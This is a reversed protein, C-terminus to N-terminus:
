PRAEPGEVIRLQEGWPAAFADRDKFGAFHAFAELQEPDSPLTHTQEDNVMQLRHEIRRLFTYAFSLERRAKATIWGGAALADLTALTGRGRLGPNRGGAILQQTQAFFEVERIGGRGLKINHGAVAIEDHGRYSHIQRKMAQVDAIAAYDLYKRWIFPSLKDLFADGVAIDGACPRAKILAQREWNQGVSEYYGLAADTSLAIQTLGPDPRLRLDVRFVYGDVTREHLMRVLSRTLRIFFPAPETEPALQPAQPDFLCILDIDSSYNLEFAGMKGMALAFYGCGLTPNAADQLRIQGRAAAARLLHRLALEIASDALRTLAATVEALPWAGGIDAIAILLAGEAKMRRLHHMAAADDVGADVAHATRELLDDFHRHPPASLLRALRAPERSALDWLFPSGVAIGELLSRVKPYGALLDPIAAAGAAGAHEALWEDVRRRAARADGARPANVIREALALTTDPAHERRRRATV